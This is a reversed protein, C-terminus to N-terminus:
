FVSRVRSVTGLSVGAEEAIDKVTISMFSRDCSSYWAADSMEIFYAITTENLTIGALRQGM